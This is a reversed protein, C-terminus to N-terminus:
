QPSASGVTVPDGTQHDEIQFKLFKHIAAVAKPDASSILLRGGRELEEYQYNIASKMTQMTPVGPPVRDHTLEPASFDGAAFKKAVEQLHMRIHDRNATDDAANAQVQVYGGDSTLRFHHTTKEQDFGMAQQGRQMVGQHHHDMQHQHADQAAVWSSMALLAAAVTGIKNRM